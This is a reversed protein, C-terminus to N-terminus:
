EFELKFTSQIQIHKDEKVSKLWSDFVPKPKACWDQWKPNKSSPVRKQFM